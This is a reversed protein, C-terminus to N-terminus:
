IKDSVQSAFHAMPNAEIGVGPIALKKCALWVLTMKIVEAMKGAVGEAPQM